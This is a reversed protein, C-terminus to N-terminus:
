CYIINMFADAPDQARSMFYVAGGERDNTYLTTCRIFTVRLLSLSGWTEWKEFPRDRDKYTTDISQGNTDRRPEQALLVSLM